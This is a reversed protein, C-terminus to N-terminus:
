INQLTTANTKLLWWYTGLKAKNIIGHNSGNIANSTSMDLLAVLEIEGLTTPITQITQSALFNGAEDTRLSCFVSSAPPFSVRLTTERMVLSYVNLVVNSGHLEMVEALVGRRSGGGNDVDFVGTM